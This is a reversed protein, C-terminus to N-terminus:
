EILHSCIIGTAVAANLSEANGRGKITIKNNCYKLLAPSIGKGESGILILGEKIATMKKIDIGDLLAAYISLEKANALLSDIDVYNISVRTISGMTAQVVKSAFADACNNSCIINEIGYWDAIRIITGLNGPDQIGDLMIIVGKKLNIEKQKPLKAIILINTPTTLASIKSMQDASILEADEFKPLLSKDSIYIKEVGFSSNVIETAMKLGEAIFLKFQLRSKKDQLSIINNIQAKTLIVV